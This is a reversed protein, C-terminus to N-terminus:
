EELISQLTRYFVQFSHSRNRTPDMHPGIKTAAEIKPLEKVDKGLHGAGKLIQLLRKDPERIEDPNRYPSRRPIDDPVRPYAKQVAEWDGFYWAELRPVVIRNIVCFRGRDPNTKTPLGARRAFEELQTKVQYCDRGDQDEMVIILWTEPSCRAYGKLRELLKKEFKKRGGLPHLRSTVSSPLMRPLLNELVTKM